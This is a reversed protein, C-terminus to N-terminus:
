PQVGALPRDASEDAGSDATRGVFLLDFQTGVQDRYRQVAHEVRDSELRAVEHLALFRETLTESTFEDINIRYESQGIESMHADVKRDYSIAIVPKAILHSLIVGHLRSAIVVDAGSISQLLNETTQQPPSPLVQLNAAEAPGTSVTKLLDNITEVDSGDTAFLVLRHGASIAWQVFRTLQNMYRSYRAGDKEPWVRPDCYAIPSVAILLPKPSLIAARQIPLAAPRYGFALDPWVTGSLRPFMAKVIAHSEFDRYSRYRALRLAGGAFRRSLPHKLQCM